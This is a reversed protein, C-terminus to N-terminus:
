EEVIRIFFSKMTENLYVSNPIYFGFVVDEYEFGDVDEHYLYEEFTEYNNKIFEWANSNMYRDNEKTTYDVLLRDKFDIFINSDNTNLRGYSSIDTVFSYIM